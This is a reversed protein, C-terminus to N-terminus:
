RYTFRFCVRRPKSSPENLGNGTTIGTVDRADGLSHPYRIRIDPIRNIYVAVIEDPEVPSFNIRSARDTPRIHGHIM